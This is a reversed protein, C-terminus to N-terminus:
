RPHLRHLDHEGTLDIFERVALSGADAPLVDFLADLAFRLYFPYRLALARRALCTAVAQQDDAGPPLFPRSKQGPLEEPFVRALEDRSMGLYHRLVKAREWADRVVVEPRAASANRQQDRIRFATLEEQMVHIDHRLTIRIWMDLDPVQALRTDYLGVEDYVSRRVMATPHCLVNGEDFFHRLWDHRARNPVRFVASDKHTPDVFPQGQEGVLRPLGFVAGVAPHQDLFAVQRALKGPLFLDDSNLVAIFEGRSRSIAHNM